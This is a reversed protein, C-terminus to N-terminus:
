FGNGEHALRRTMLAEILVTLDRDLGIQGDRGDLLLADLPWAVVGMSKPAKARERDRGDQCSQGKGVHAVAETQLLSRM